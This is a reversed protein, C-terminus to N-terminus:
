WIGRPIGGQRKIMGIDDLPKGRFGLVDSYAGTMPGRSGGTHINGPGAPREALWVALAVALVADDHHGVRWEGFTENAALTVKVKFNMLEQELLQALPLAPVIKLRRTQLRADVCSVLEKKPVFHWVLGPHPEQRVEMGATIAVAHFAVPQGRLADLFL